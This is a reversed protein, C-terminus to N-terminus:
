YHRKLCQCTLGCRKKEKKTLIIQSSSMSLHIMICFIVNGRPVCNRLLLCAHKLLNEKGGM